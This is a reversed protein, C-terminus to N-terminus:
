DEGKTSQKSRPILLVALGLILLVFAGALGLSINRKGVERLSVPVLLLLIIGVAGRTGLSVFNFRATVLYSMLVLLVPFVLAYRGVIVDSAAASVGTFGNAYLACIIALVFSSAAITQLTGGLSHLKANRKSPETGRVEIALGAFIAFTGVIFVYPDRTVDLYVTSPLFYTFGEGAWRVLAYIASLAFPVIYLLTSIDDNSLTRRSM